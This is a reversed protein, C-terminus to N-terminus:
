RYRFVARSRLTRICGGYHIGPVSLDSQAPTALATAPWCSLDRLSQRSAFLHAYLPFDAGQTRRPPSQFRPLTSINHCECVFSRPLLSCLCRVLGARWDGVRGIPPDLFRRCSEFGSGRRSGVRSRNAPRTPGRSPPRVRRPRQTMHGQCYRPSNRKRAEAPPRSRGDRSQAQRGSEYQRPARSALHYHLTALIGQRRSSRPRPKVRVRRLGHKAGRRSGHPGRTCRM